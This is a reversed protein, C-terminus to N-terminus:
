TDVEAALATDLYDLLLAIADEARLQEANLAQRIYLGDIMAAIGRTLKMAQARSLKRLDHHLNSRLRAHYLRLLRAAEDSRQAQVYFNLWAAVVEPRFHSPSFSARIVAEIRARPTKAMALAGRIEAGYLTLVHRMAAAFMQEKGGFYHHALASSMGARKAIQAVTIDLTGVRGIEIITAEVLASRRLPEM